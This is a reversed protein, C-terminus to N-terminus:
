SQAAAADAPGSSLDIVLARGQELGYRVARLQVTMPEGSELLIRISGAGIAISLRRGRWQLPIRLATWEQPICPSLAVGDDRLSVGAFGLVAMMWVGGQAAIHIGGAIAAKDDGLDITGTRQFLDLARETQGLRAAVLGHMATSLSSGHGCRPEYHDFNTEVIGTSYAEPLLALLAVVDAQKIVQSRATRDRGLVVDMPVSRGAYANLEITELGNYGEFQEFLGTDPNLGTEITRSAEAWCDLEDPGLDLRGALEAWHDPWRSQMLGAIELGREINWRAMGNTFANDDITEHYEDPGIVGRIHRRGDAELAARSEWFRATELIIEAGADQLFAEDGTAMWYQWVAWAVDASIHQEQMGCLIALVQRDPGVTHDPTAEAGTDASEWAYLAGRWGLRKAKARAEGLTHFRYMLLARAAEPWTLCYFPILFIETDWFVHGAYDDGTLARAAISVTEDDPNAASNLHFVAFRVAQQAAPDGEIVVDSAAMRMSWAAEHAALAARWGLRTVQDCVDKTETALDEVEPGGRGFVVLRTFTVSQGCPASWTWTGGPTTAPGEPQVVGDITLSNSLAMALRWLSQCTRWVRPGAEEDFAILAPDASGIGAILSVTGEGELVDIRLRQLGLSRRSVSVLRLERVRLSIDANAHHCTTQLLGRQMDLSLAHSPDGAPEHTMPGGPSILRVRLWDPAPVLRPVAGPTNATDFLGAVLTRSPSVWRDAEIFPREGRVGLFGNSLAFRSQRSSERLADYGLAELRWAPDLTPAFENDPPPNRTM